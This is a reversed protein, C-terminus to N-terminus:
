FYSNPDVNLDCCFNFECIKCFNSQEPNFEENTFNECISGLYSEINEMDEEKSKFYTKQNESIHYASIQDFSYEDNLAYKYVKLQNEVEKLQRKKTGSVKFDVLELEGHSNEMILDIRGSILINNTYVSFSEESSIVQKINDKNTKYYEWLREILM